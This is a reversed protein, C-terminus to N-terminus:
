KDMAIETVVLKGNENTARFRIKDGSKLKDAMAKDKTAFVMTMPPMGLNKIEGHKITLRGTDKDVKQVEGPTMDSSSDAKAEGQRAPTSPATQALLALPSLVAVALTASVISTKMKM